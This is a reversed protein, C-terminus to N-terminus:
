VLSSISSASSLIAPQTARTRDPHAFRGTDSSSAARTPFIPVDSARHYFHEGRLHGLL